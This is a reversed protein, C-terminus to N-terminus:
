YYKKLIKLNLNRKYFMRVFIFTFLKYDIDFKFKRLLKLYINLTKYNYNNVRFFLSATIRKLNTNSLNRFILENYLANLLLFIQGISYSKLYCCKHNIFVEDQILTTKSGQANHSRYNLLVEQCNGFRYGNMALKMWLHLDEAAKINASYKFTKLIKSKIFLTPHAIPTTFLLSFLIDENKEPFYILSSENGFTRYNSGCIDLNNTLLYNLQIKIRDFYSIDDSDMRAIYLGNANDIGLNLANSIGNNQGKIIILRKDNISRIFSLLNDSNTDDIIIIELNSYSQNIISYISDNVYSNYFKIPLLVSVLPEDFYM